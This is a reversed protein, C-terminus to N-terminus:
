ESVGVRYVYIICESFRFDALRASLIQYRYYYHSQAISDKGQTM